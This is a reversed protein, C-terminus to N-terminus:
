YGAAEAAYDRQSAEIREWKPILVGEPTIRAQLMSVHCRHIRHSSHRGDCDRSDEEVESIVYDGQRYFTQIEETYGEENPENKHIQFTENEDLRIRLWTDADGSTGEGSDSVIYGHYNWFSIEM